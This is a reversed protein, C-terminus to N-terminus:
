KIRTSKDGLHSLFLFTIAAAFANLAIAITYHAFFTAPYYRILTSTAPFQWNGQPFFLHHFWTFLNDFPIIAGLLVFALLLITGYYTVPKWNNLTTHRIHFLGLFLLAVFAALVLTKVDNLHAAEQANFDAPVPASTFFFATLQKTPEVAGPNDLLHLTFGPDTILVAFSILLCLVPFTIILATKMM